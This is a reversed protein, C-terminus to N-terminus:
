RFRRSVFFVESQKQSVKFKTKGFTVATVPFIGSFFFVQSSFYRLLFIGSFFFVEPVPFIGPNKSSQKKFFVQTIVPFTTVPKKFKTKSKRKQVKNRVGKKM